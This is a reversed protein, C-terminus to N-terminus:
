PQSLPGFGPARGLRCGECLFEVGDFFAAVAPTRGGCRDCFEDAECSDLKIAIWIQGHAHKVLRLLEPVHDQSYDFVRAHMREETFGWNAATGALYQGEENVILVKIPGIENM